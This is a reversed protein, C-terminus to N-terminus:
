ADPFLDRILNHVALHLERDHDMMQRIKRYGHMMSTHDRNGFLQGIHKWSGKTIERTVYVAVHRAHAIPAKRSEGKIEPVPIDFQRSVANVIQEFSPRVPASSQFYAHVVSVALDRTIPTEDLSAQAILKTLAGELTRITGPVTEALVMATDHDLGVGEREAKKQIIACRTETDPMQVDVVLNSEFRSRLRESMLLLDRPSRDACLVVQKGSQQLYNFTHFVEEQTKDRESIFQVDDLLWVNVNRHSRRFQDIRNHQLAYVFEETFQQATMYVVSLKPDRAILENAIAHLLHTKGLGSPGYIFLPNYKVGPHSAVAKAGAYAMRNSQGVVFQDFVFCPDPIFRSSEMAVPTSSVKPAISPTAPKERAEYKVEFRVAFGLEDSVAESLKDLYKETVWTHVFRGPAMFVASEGQIGIPRLPRLFRELATAPMSTSLRELTHGWAERLRIQDERDEITYQDDMPM